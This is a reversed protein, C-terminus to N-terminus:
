TGSQHAGSVTVQGFKAQLRLGGETGVIPWLEHSERPVKTRMIALPPRVEPCRGHRQSDLLRTAVTPGIKHRGYIRTESLGFQERDCLSEARM